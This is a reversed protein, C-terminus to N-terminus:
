RDAAPQSTTNCIKESSRLRNRNSLAEQDEPVEDFRLLSLSLIKRIVEQLGFRLGFDLGEM